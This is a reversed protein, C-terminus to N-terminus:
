INGKIDKIVLIATIIVGIIALLVTIGVDNFTAEVGNVLNYNEVSFLQLLTSGGIVIKANQLGIFAIFLGIGVSVASKLNMPIANFIAERVNTVSLVIFVLGEVFVATLATQWSYGMGLVVTYA